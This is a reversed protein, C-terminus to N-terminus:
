RSWADRRAARRHVAYGFLCLVLVAAALGAQFLFYRPELHLRLVLSGLFPGAAFGIAGGGIVAATLREARCFVSSTMVIVPWIPGASFGLLFALGFRAAQSGIAASLTTSLFLLASCALLTPWLTFRAPLLAISFRGLTM